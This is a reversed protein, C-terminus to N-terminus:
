CFFLEGICIRSPSLSTCVLEDKMWGFDFVGVAEEMVCEGVRLVGTEANVWNSDHLPLLSESKIRNIVMVVFASGKM